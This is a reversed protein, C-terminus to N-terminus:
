IFLPNDEDYIPGRTSETFFYAAILSGIAILLLSLLFVTLKKYM